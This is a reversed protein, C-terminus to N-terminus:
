VVKKAGGLGRNFNKVIAEHVEFLQTKKASVILFLNNLPPNLSAV